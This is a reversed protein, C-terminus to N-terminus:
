AAAQNPNTLPRNRLRAPARGPLPHQQQRNRHHHETLANNLLAWLLVDCLQRRWGLSMARDVLLTRKLESNANEADNRIPYLHDFDSEGPAILRVADPRRYSRDGTEAHPSVWALFSGHRCPVEFAANFHYKGTSRRPRKVQRRILRHLVVPRARHDLAVECVAGDVAALAHRCGEGAVDHEWVGLQLWRANRAVVRPAAADQAGPAAPLDQEDQETPPPAGPAPRPNRRNRRPRGGPTPAAAVKNIVVLGLDSMLTEIHRGRLAGDYVVAQIGSGAEAHVRVISRLASDAERGPADVRDVSLVVRGHFHDTRAYLCVFNNGNVPGTHGHFAAADPDIRRGPQERLEGTAPDPYAPRQGGDGDPVLVAHPPRYMPRIVTGDGYILRSRDPHCLSGPGQPNLLGMGRAQAVALRTFLQQLAQQVDPDTLYADRLYRWSDWRPAQRPLVPAGSDDRPLPLTPDQAMQELVTLARQWLEPRSLETQVKQGSRYVRMLVGYLLLLVAPHAPKRGVPQQQPLLAALEYLPRHRLVAEMTEAVSLRPEAVALRRVAM